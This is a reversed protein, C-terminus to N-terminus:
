SERSPPAPRIVPPAIEVPSPRSLGPPAIRVGVDPKENPRATEVEHTASVAEKLRVLPLNEEKSLSKEPLLGASEPFAVRTQGREDSLVVYARNVEKLMVGPHVQDGNRVVNAPNADVSIIAMREAIAGSFVVGDLKYQRTAVINVRKGFLGHAASIDLGPQIGPVIERVPSPIGGLFHKFWYNGSVCISAFLILSVFKLAYKM